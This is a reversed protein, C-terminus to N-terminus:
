FKEDKAVSSEGFDNSFYHRAVKIEPRYLGNILSNIKGETTSELIKKRSEPSLKRADSIISLGIGRKMDRGAFVTEFPTLERKSLSSQESQNLYPIHRDVNPTKAFRMEVLSLWSTDRFVAEDFNVRYTVGGFRSSPKKPTDGVELSFFVFDDNGLIKIDEPPSNNENFIIGREILKERSYLSLVGSENKVPALTTHTAYFKQNLFVNLFKIEDDSLPALDKSLDSINGMSISEIYKSGGSRNSAWIDGNETMHSYSKEAIYKRIAATITRSAQQRDFDSQQGVNTITGAGQGPEARNGQRPATPATTEDVSDSPKLSWTNEGENRVLTPGSASAAPETVLRARATGDPNPVVMVTGGGKLDAYHRGKFSRLGDQYEPSM